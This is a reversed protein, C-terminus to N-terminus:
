NFVGKFAEPLYVDFNSKLAKSIELSAEIDSSFGVEKQFMLVACSSKFEVKKHILYFAARVEDPSGVCDFPKLGKIGLLERYTDLLWVNDLLNNGFIDLCTKKDLFASLVLFVFACKACRGCWLFNAIKNIRFNTNCSTFIQFYKPFKSFQYAIALESMPRLLSFYNIGKSVTEHVYDRFMKEFEESKSWQHNIMKGLYEVSGYNASRENSTIVSDYGYLVAAFVGLFAYIASVPIHGNLVNPIKNLEFLKEDINRRINVKDISMKSIVEDTVSFDNQTEVVFADFEIKKSKLLEATVISDKGGGIAVLARKHSIINDSILRLNESYPFNVMGRFDIKNKFYFEGLGISYIKNWFESM